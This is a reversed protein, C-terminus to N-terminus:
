VEWEFALNFIKVKKERATVHNSPFWSCIPQRGPADWRRIKVESALVWWARSPRRAPITCGLSPFHWRLASLIYLMDVVMTLTHQLHTHETSLFLILSVCHVIKNLTHFPVNWHQALWQTRHRDPGDPNGMERESWPFSTPSCCWDLRRRWWGRPEETGPWLVYEAYIYMLCINKFHFQSFSLFDWETIM